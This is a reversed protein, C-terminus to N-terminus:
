CALGDLMENRLEELVAEAVATLVEVAFVLCVEGIPVLFPPPKAFSLLLPRLDMFFLLEEDCASAAARFPHPASDLARPASGCDRSRGRVTAGLSVSRRQVNSLFVLLDSPLSSSAQPQRPQEAFNM